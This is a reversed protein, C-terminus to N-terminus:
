GVRRGAEAPPVSTRALGPGVLAATSRRLEHAAARWALAQAVCATERRGGAGEERRYRRALVLARRAAVVLGRARRRVRALREIEVDEPDHAPDSMADM